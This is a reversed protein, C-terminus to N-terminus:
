PGDMEILDDNVFMWPHESVAARIAENTANFAAAADAVSVQDPQCSAWVSVATIFAERSIATERDRSWLMTEGDEDCEAQDALDTVAYRPRSKLAAQKVQMDHCRQLDFWEITAKGLAFATQAIRSMGNM